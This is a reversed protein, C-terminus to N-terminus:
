DIDKKKSKKRKKEGYSYGYGYGYGYGDGISTGNLLLCMNNYRKESYLNHILKLMRRDFLGSRIVFITTDVYENLIRSDAVVEIPPCDFFIFDYEQELTNLLPKLRESYLLESPNPPLNGVGILSLNDIGAVNHEIIDNINSTGCLYNAVGMRPANLSDSLTARRLDFDIMLVRKGKLALATALNMTIFTKGSGPNASTTMIVQAGQKDTTLFFDLNTRVVRFAENVVNTSDARVVINRTSSDDKRRRGKQPIEGIFPVGINEVDERSRVKTDLNAQIIYIGSPIVIAILVAILYTNASIPSIPGAPGSPERVVQTNYSKFAQALENEERKQLLFLYLSEKVKQQREVSLLYNAQRPATALQSNTASEQSRIGGLRTNLTTAYTAATHQINRKMTRLAEGKELVQPNNAGTANLLRNREIVQQNYMQIQSELGTNGIGLNSPLTEEISEKALEGRVFNLIQIQNTLDYQQSQLESSRAMNIQAQQAIDPTMTRAKYSSIDSDVNGLEKEIVNLRESIFSSTADAISKKENIWQDNYAQVIGALVDTCRYPSTSNYTLIILTGEKTECTADVEAAISEAVGRVPAHSYKINKDIYGSSWEPNDFSIQGVPTNVTEGLRTTIIKSDYKTEGKHFDCLTIQGNPNVRYTFGYSLDANVADPSSIVAPEEKYIDINKLGDNYSYFNNLGYAKVVEEILDPSTFIAIENQLNAYKPMVGVESLDVSAAGNGFTPDKILVTESKTYIRPTRALILWALGVCVILTLLYWYWRRRVFSLFGQVSILSTTDPEYYYPQAPQAPEEKIQNAM